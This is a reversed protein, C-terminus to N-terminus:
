LRSRPQEYVRPPLTLERGSNWIADLSLPGHAQGRTLTCSRTDTQVGAIWQPASAAAITLEVILNSLTPADEWQSQDWGAWHGWGWDEIVYREGPALHQFLLESSLRTLGYQHSADDIVMNPRPLRTLLAEDSQSAEYLLKLNPFSEALRRVAPNAKRIDIATVAMDPFLAAWLLSSGGEFIGLEILHAPRERAFLDAYFEIFPRRKLIIIEDDTTRSSYDHTCRFNLNGVSFREGDRWTIKDM